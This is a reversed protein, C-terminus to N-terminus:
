IKSIKFKRRDIIMGALPAILPALIGRLPAVPAALGDQGRWGRMRGSELQRTAVTYRAPIHKKQALALWSKARKM